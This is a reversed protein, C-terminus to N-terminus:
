EKEKWEFYGRHFCLGLVILLCLLGSLGYITYGFASGSFYEMLGTKHESMRIYKPIVEHIVHRNDESLRRLCEVVQPSWDKGLLVGYARDRPIIRAIHLNNKSIRESYYSATYFDIFGLRVGSKRNSVARIVELENKE